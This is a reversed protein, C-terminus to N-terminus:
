AGTYDKGFQTKFKAKFTEPSIAKLRPLEGSKDLESYSKAALAKLEDASGGNDIMDTVGTYAPLADILNKLGEPNTAYDVKLKNGTEVTLKKGEVGKAILDEVKAKTTSAQLDKLKTEATEKATNAAALQQNIADVQKAKAVLNNLTAEVLTADADASLGIATLQAATLTITKMSTKFKQTFDALNIEHGDADFLALANYNGPIDVLSAERNYWKTITPGTQEPLVQPGDAVMDLVVFHGLSAANLFGAEIEDVTREGRPHNLNINPKAYVKDGDNRFDSWRVLVGDKRTYETLKPDGHLYYGIPNKRFEAQDYGATLLRFGYSNVTSDTLLFEKDIKKFKEAM